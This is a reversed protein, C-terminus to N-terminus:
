ALFEKIFPDQSTILEATTGDFILKGDHLVLFSTKANIQGHPLPVMKNQTQDFRHTVMTFADQLRHTVLLSPTGLVDREKVVLEIITTSTIPDLGGTPSDYLILDPQDIIARAIAVRRRMGGSLSAPLLDYTHELEVFRLSDRVRRDVEDVPKHREMLQYGVNDRVALSDFLAGEQFVMGTRTRLPFLERETMHTIDEGFLLIRGSDPRLLGNVLKLLVSKGVGAPGLLIRTEGPGVQFSVDKLVKLDNFGISVHEFVVVPESSGHASAPEHAFQVSYAM